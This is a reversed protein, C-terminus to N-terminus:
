TPATGAQLSQGLQDVLLLQVLDSGTRTVPGLFPATPAAVGTPLWDGDAVAQLDMIREALLGFSPQGAIGLVLIRTSLRSTCHGTGFLAALDVVPVVRGRYPLLGVVHDPAHPLPRLPVWPVVEVVRAAEVAYWSGAQLTVTLM